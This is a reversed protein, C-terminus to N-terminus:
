WGHSHVYLMLSVIRLDPQLNLLSAFNLNKISKAAGYDMLLRSSGQAKAEVSKREKESLAAFGQRGGSGDDVGDVAGCRGCWCSWLCQGYLGVLLACVEMETVRGCVFWM